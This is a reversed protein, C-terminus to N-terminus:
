SSSFDQPAVPSVESVFGAEQGKFEGESTIPNDDGRRRHSLWSLDCHVRGGIERSVNFITNVNQVAPPPHAARSVKNVSVM